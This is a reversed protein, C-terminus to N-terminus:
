AVQETAGAPDMAGTSRAPPPASPPLTYGIPQPFEPDRGADIPACGIALPISAAAAAAVARLALRSRPGGCAAVRGKRSSRLGAAVVFLPFCTRPRQGAPGDECLSPITFTSSWKECRECREWRKRLRPFVIASVRETLMVSRM